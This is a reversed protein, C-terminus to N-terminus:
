LDVEPKEQPDRSVPRANKAAAVLQLLASGAARSVIHAGGNTM